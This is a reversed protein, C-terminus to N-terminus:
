HYTGNQIKQQSIEFISCLIKSDDEDSANSEYLDRLIDKTCDDFNSSIPEKYNENLLKRYRELLLICTKRPPTQNSEFLSPSKLAVRCSLPDDINPILYLSKLTGEEHFSFVRADQFGKYYIFQFQILQADQFHSPQQQRTVIMITTEKTSVICPKDLQQNGTRKTSM